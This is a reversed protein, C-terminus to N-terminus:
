KKYKSHLRGDLPNCTFSFIFGKDDASWLFKGGADYALSLVRGAVKVLGSRASKGTSVNLIQIEGNGKGIQM